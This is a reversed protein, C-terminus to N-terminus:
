IKINFILDLKIKIIFFNFFILSFFEEKLARVLFFVREEKKEEEQWSSIKKRIKRCYFWCLLGEKVDLFWCAFDYFIEELPAQVLPKMYSSIPRGVRPRGEGLFKAVLFLSPASNKEHSWLPPTADEKPTPEWLSLLSPM